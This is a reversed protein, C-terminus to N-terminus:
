EKAYPSSHGLWTSYVEPTMPWSLPRTETGNAKGDAPAAFRHRAHFTNGWIWAPGLVMLQSSQNWRKPLFRTVLAPANLVDVVGHAWDQGFMPHETDRTYLVKVLRAYFNDGDAFGHIAAVFGAVFGHRSGLLIGEEPHCESFTSSIGVRSYKTQPLHRGWNM